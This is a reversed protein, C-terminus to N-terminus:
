IFFSQRILNRIDDDQSNAYTILDLNEIRFKVATKSIGFHQSLFEVTERYDKKNIPQDDLYIYHPRSIGISKRFAVLYPFFLDKPLFLAIAFKNAQWEIWHKGNVLQHRDTFFDYKSDEFDNYREQNVKLESHLFFHGLEHGLVFPFKETSIISKDILISNNELDFYGTIKKGNVTELNKTFDFKLKHKQELYKKFEEIKIPSNLNNYDRLISLAFNEIQEASLKKLGEVKELGLTKKIFIFIIQDTDKNEERTRNRETRHLIISHNNDKDVEILMMMKNKAFTVGGTQFKNDSIMIGKVGGGAVQNYKTYFEEVDDVPVNHGKPSSKCEILYLLTYREANEPWVEISLDFIINKERDKSYYGKKRHVVASSECIGLEGNKIAKEILDYSKNEFKDGIKVTNM